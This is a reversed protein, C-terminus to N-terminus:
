HNTHVHCGRKKDEKHIRKQFKLPPMLVHAKDFSREEITENGSSYEEIEDIETKVSFIQAVTKSKDFPSKRRTEIRFAEKHLGM